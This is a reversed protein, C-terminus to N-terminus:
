PSVRTLRFSQFYGSASQIRMLYPGNAWHNAAISFPGDGAPLVQRWCLRGLANFLTLDYEGWKLGRLDLTIVDSFVSSLLVESTWHVEEFGTGLNCVNPAVSVCVEDLFAYAFYTDGTPDLVVSECLSDNFFNGIQLYEYASDPVYTGSLSIWDATDQLIQHMHLAAENFEFQGLSTMYELPSVSFHMGIGSAALIPSTFGLTSFGGAALRISLHVLQGPVLADTLKVQLFEEGGDRPFFGLGMYADGDAAWQYGAMNGPVDVTDTICCANFYDPSIGITTWGGAAYDIQFQNSPCVTYEEFSPNPVLNQAFSSSCVFFLSGYLARRLTVRRAERYM